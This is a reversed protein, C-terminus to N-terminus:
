NIGFLATESGKVESRKTISTVANAIIVTATIRSEHIDAVAIIERFAGKTVEGM